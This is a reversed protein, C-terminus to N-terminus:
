IKKKRLTELVDDLTVMVPAEARHRHRYEESLYACERVAVHHPLPRCRAKMQEWELPYGNYVPAAAPARKARKRQLTPMTTGTFHESRHEMKGCRPTRKGTREAVISVEREALPRWQGVLDTM